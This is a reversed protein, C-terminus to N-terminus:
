WMVVKGPCDRELVPCLKSSAISRDRSLCISSSSYSWAGAAKGWPFSGETGMPYSAPYAGLAPRKGPNQGYTAIGVSGGRSGCADLSHRTGSPPLRATPNRAAGDKANTFLSTRWRTTRAAETTLNPLSRSRWEVQFCTFDIITCHLLMMRANLM